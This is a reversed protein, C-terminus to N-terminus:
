AGRGILTPERLEKEHGNEIWDRLLRLILSLNSFDKGGADSPNYVFFLCERGTAVCGGLQKAKAAAAMATQHLATMLADSEAEAAYIRVTLAQPCSGVSLSVESVTQSHFLSTGTGSAGRTSRETFIIMFDVVGRYTYGTPELLIDDIRFESAIAVGNDTSDLNLAINFYCPM